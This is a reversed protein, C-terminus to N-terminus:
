DEELWRGITKQIMQRADVLQPLDKPSSPYMDACHATGNIFIPTIDDMNPSNMTISITHWPDLSGNPFIVKSGKFFIGGYNLNTREVGRKLLTETFKSGFVDSCQQLFFSLPFDNGFPQAYSDSTQYFGFETCTQFMWQRDGGASESSWDVQKLRDIMKTYKFDLCPENYAKLLMKVVDGFTDTLTKGPSFDTLVKCMKEINIDTGLAGEFQRNDNSYQVVTEVLSALVSFLNSVDDMNKPDIKDCVKLLQEAKKTEYSVMGNIISTGNMFGSWCFWGNYWSSQTAYISQTAAVLLDQFNMIAYMPASSAVAGDVLHPYKLRYWAALSGSYSGGFVIWKTTNLEPMQDCMFQRFSAVDALAQDVSLYQLNDTSLDSTPRSKGYYRHELMLILANYSAAYNIWQGQVMWQPNAEAEGGLMLFVPGNDQYYQTSIFYRQQWSSDDIYNFHDLKQSFYQDPPVAGTKESAVPNGLFGGDHRGLFVPPRLAHCVPNAALLVAILSFTFVADM